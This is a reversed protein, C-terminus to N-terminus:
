LYKKFGIHSAQYGLSLYFDKAGPRAINTTLQLMRCQHERAIEEGKAFMFSGLGSGRYM